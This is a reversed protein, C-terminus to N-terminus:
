TNPCAAAVARAGAGGDGCGDGVLARHGGASSSPRHHGEAATTV